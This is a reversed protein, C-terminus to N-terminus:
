AIAALEGGNLVNAISNMTAAKRRMYTEIIEKLDYKELDIEMARAYHELSHIAHFFHDKETPGTHVAIWALVANSEGGTIGENEELWKRFLPLIYEVEGHTYIEHVITTLLGIVIDQDKLSNKDKWKKFETAEPTLYRNLLWQDNKCFHTAMRFYLDKHMIGGVVGLDEDVIRHLSILSQFLEMPDKVPKNKHMLLTLRNAIGSVTMASNNTMSWSHFFCNLKDPSHKGSTLIRFCNEIASFSETQESFYTLLQKKIFANDISEIVPSIITKM